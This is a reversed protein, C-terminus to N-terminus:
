RRSPSRGSGHFGIQHRTGAPLLVSRYSKDPHLPLGLVRCAALSKAMNDECQSSDPPGATIFDDLYHMLDSVNHAHRLIWEMMDAVSSFIFPASRLGFPLALDVYYRGRWKLGLLYRNGPHVAINCYATEVDFKAM